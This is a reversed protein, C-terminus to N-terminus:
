STLKRAEQPWSNLIAQTPAAVLFPKTVSGRLRGETLLYDMDRLGLLTKGVGTAVAIGARKQNRIVMLINDQLAQKRMLASGAAIRTSSYSTM